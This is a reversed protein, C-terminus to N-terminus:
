DDEGWLGHYRGWWYAFLYDVGPPEMDSAGGKYDLSGARWVFNDLDREFLPYAYLGRLRLGLGWDLKWPLDPFPSMSFRPNITWDVDRRIKPAPFEALALKARDIEFTMPFASALPPMVISYINARYRAMREMAVRCGHRLMIEQDDGLLIAIKAITFLQQAILYNGSWDSIGYVAIQGNGNALFWNLHPSLLLQRYRNVHEADDTMYALMMQFGLENILGDGVDPHNEVLDRLITVMEDREDDYGDLGDLALWSWFFGTYFGHSMDNNGNPAYDYATYDGTGQVWDAPSNGDHMRVARAFEGPNPVIEWCLFQGHLGTLMNDLAEEEGTVLYRMAQSAIYSGTWEMTSFDADWTIVANDDHISSHVMGAGEIHFDVTNQDYFAAKETLTQGYARQRSKAEAMSFTDIPQQIVRITDPNARLFNLDTPDSVAYHIAANFDDRELYPQIDPVDYMSGFLLFFFDKLGPEIPEHMPATSRRNVWIPEGNNPGAWTWTETLSINKGGDGLTGTFVGDGDATLTGTVAIPGTNETDRADGNYAALYWVPFLSASLAISEPSADAAGDFAWAVEDGEFDLDAYRVTRVFRYAKMEPNALIQAQGSYPGHEADEGTVDYIGAPPGAEDDDGGGSDDDDGTDDETDDDEPEGTDDDPPGAADHADDDDDGCSCFLFAPAALVVAFWFFQARKM